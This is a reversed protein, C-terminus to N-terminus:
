RFLLIVITFALILKKNHKCQDFLCIKKFESCGFRSFTDSSTFKSYTATVRALFRRMRVGVSILMSEDAPTLSKVKKRLGKGALCSM